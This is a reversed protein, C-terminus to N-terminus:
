DRFVYRDDYEIGYIELFKLYEERFSWKRHHEEQRDIYRETTKVVSQSVSMAAYGGQWAFHEYVPSLLKIWRSSNRKMEEVLMAVTTTASLTCLVHVHDATGGVKITHCGANNILKGIYHHVRSLHEQAITPSSSKTHFIIHLYIKCLSQAM